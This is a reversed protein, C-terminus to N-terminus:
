VLCFKAKSFYRVKRHTLINQSTKSAKNINGKKTQVAYIIKQNLKNIESFICDKGDEDVGCYDSGDEFGARQFAPRVVRDRFEDESMARLFNIKKVRSILEPNLAM